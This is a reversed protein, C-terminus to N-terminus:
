LPFLQEPRKFFVAKQSMVSTTLCVKVLTKSYGTSGDRSPPTVGIHCHRTDTSFFPQINNHNYNNNNDFKESRLRLQSVNV